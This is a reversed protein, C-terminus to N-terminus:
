RLEKLLRDIEDALSPSSQRIGYTNEYQLETLIATFDRIRESVVNFFQGEDMAKKAWSPLDDPIIETITKM